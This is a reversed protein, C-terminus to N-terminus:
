VAWLWDSFEDDDREGNPAVDSQAGSQGHPPLIAGPSGPAGAGAIARGVPPGVPASFSADVFDFGRALSLGKLVERLSALSLERACELFVQQTKNQWNTGGRALLRVSARRGFGGFAVTLPSSDTPRPEYPLPRIRSTNVRLVGSTASLSDIIPKLGPLYLFRYAGAERGEGEGRYARASGEEGEEDDARRPADRRAFARREPARPADAPAAVPVAAPNRLERARRPGEEGSSGVMM